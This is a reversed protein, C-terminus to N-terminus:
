DAYDLDIDKTVAVIEREISPLRDVLLLRVTQEQGKFYIRVRDKRQVYDNPNVVIEPFIVKNAVSKKVNLNWEEYVKVEVKPVIPFEGKNIITYTVGTVFGSEEEDKEFEVDNIEITIGEVTGSNEESVNPLYNICYDTDEVLAGGPCKYYIINKTEVKTKVPCLDCDTECETENAEECVCEPCEQELIVNGTPTELTRNPKISEFGVISLAIIVVIILLNVPFKTLFVVKTVKLFKKAKELFKNKKEPEAFPDPM